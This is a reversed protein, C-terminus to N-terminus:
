DSDKLEFGERRSGSLIIVSDNDTASKRDVIETINWADRRIALQRSTGVMQCMGAFVAESM